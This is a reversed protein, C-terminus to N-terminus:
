ADPGAIESADPLLGETGARGRVTKSAWLYYPIGLGILVFGFCMQQIKEVSM